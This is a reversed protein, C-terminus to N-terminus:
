EDQNEAPIGLVRGPTSGRNKLAHQKAVADLVTVGFCFGIKYTKSLTVSPDDAKIHRVTSSGHMYSDRGNLTLRALTGVEMPRLLHCRGSICIAQLLADRLRM